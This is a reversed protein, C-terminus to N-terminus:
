WRIPGAAPWGVAVGFGVVDAVELDVVLGHVVAERRLRVSFDDVEVAAAKRVMAGLACITAQPCFRELSMSQLSFTM